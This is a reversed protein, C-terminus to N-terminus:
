GAIKMLITWNVMFNSDDRPGIRTKQTHTRGNHQQVNMRASTYM